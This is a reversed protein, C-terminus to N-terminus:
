IEEKAFTRLVMEETLIGQEALETKVREMIDSALIRELRIDLVYAKIKFTSLFTHDFRDQVLVSIPKKLYTYPSSAAAKWALAKVAQVDVTAPLAFETVVMETLEGSNANSVAQKFVEANPIVVVNDDFTRLRTVNLNLSIVEGYHGAVRVMDGVGFPPNFLMMIGAFVNRIMDQAALGVAIGSSALVALVVNESPRLVGLIIFGIASTWIFLRLIPFLRSIQLRYKNFQKALKELLIRLFHISIWAMAIVVAAKVIQAPALINSFEKLLSEDM